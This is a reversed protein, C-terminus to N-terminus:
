PRGGASAARMARGLTQVFLDAEAPNQPFSCSWGQRGAQRVEVGDAHPRIGDIRGLPVDEHLPSGIFLLRQSTVWVVGPTPPGEGGRLVAPAQFWCAEDPRFRPPGREPLVGAGGGGIPTPGPHPPPLATRGAGADLAHWDAWLLKLMLGAAAIGAVPWFSPDDGYALLSVIGGILCAAAIGLFAVAKGRALGVTLGMLLPGLVLFRLAMARQEEDLLLGLGLMTMVAGVPFAMFIMVLASYGEGRGAIEDDPAGDAGRASEVGGDLPAAPEVRGAPLRASGPLEQGRPVERFGAGATSRPSEAASDEALRPGGCHPCTPAEAGAERGCERCPTHAM